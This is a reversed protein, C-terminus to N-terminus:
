VNQARMIKGEATHIEIDGNNFHINYLSGYKVEFDQLKKYSQVLLHCLIIRIVGGHTVVLLRQDTDGARIDNWVNIVRDKFHNFNEGEPSSHKEPNEWFRGLEDPSDEFVEAVTRGEWKGFHMEQLRADLTLPLSYQKAYMNAFKTCRVLPSSILKNWCIDNNTSAQMQSFGKPTLADDTSGRFRVGGEVEGHRLLGIIM